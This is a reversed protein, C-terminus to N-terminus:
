RINYVVYRIYSNTTPDYLGFMLSAADSINCMLSKFTIFMHTALTGPGSHSIRKATSLKPLNRSSMSMQSSQMEIIIEASKVHLFYLETVSTSDSDIVEGEIRPILDM